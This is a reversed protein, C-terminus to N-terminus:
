HYSHEPVGFHIVFPSNSHCDVISSDATRNATYSLKIDLNYSIMELSYSIDVRQGLNYSIDVKRALNYSIDIKMELINSVMLRLINGAIQELVNSAMQELVNGAMQELIYNIKEPICSAICILSGMTPIAEITYTPDRTMCNEATTTDATYCHNSDIRFGMAVVSTFDTNVTTISALVPFIVLTPPIDDTIPGARLTTMIALLLDVVMAFLHDKGVVLPHGMEVVLPLDMITIFPLDMITIFPLDEVM